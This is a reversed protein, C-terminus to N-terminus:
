GPQGSSVECERCLYLGSASQVIPCQGFTCSSFRGRPRHGRRRLGTNHDQNVLRRRHLAAPPSVLRPIIAALPLFSRLHVAFDPKCSGKEVQQNRQSARDRLSTLWLRSWHLSGLRCGDGPELWQGAGFLRRDRLAWGPLRSESSPDLSHETQPEGSQGPCPASGILGPASSMSAQGRAAEGSAFLRKMTRM